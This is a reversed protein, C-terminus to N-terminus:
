ETNDQSAGRPEDSLLTEDVQEQMEEEGTISKARREVTEQDTLSIHEAMQQALSCLWPIAAHLTTLRGILSVPGGGTGGVQLSDFSLYGAAMTAAAQYVLKRTDASLGKFYEKTYIIKRKDETM